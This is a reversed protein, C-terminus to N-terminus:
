SHDCPIIKRFITQTAGKGSLTAREACSRFSSHRLFGLYIHGIIVSLALVVACYAGGGTARM